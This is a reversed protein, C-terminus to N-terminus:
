YKSFEINRKKLETKFPDIPVIKEGPIVGRTTILDHAIFQGIISTPYATTRAMASFGTTPDTLDILQYTHIEKVGNISGKITIRALVVDPKNKPLNKELYHEIIERPTIEPNKPYNIASLLGFEKLFKIFQYHGPYRITKYTLENIKNEFLEPLSSTGGATQFAELEGWPEPFKIYEHGTLSPVKIAKRNQIIVADELYENTLGRIAFTQQYKLLTKPEQPLGGVKLHCEDLEEFEQMGNAAIINVMGPALGLDPIITVDAKKADNTLTKQMQVVTPNGGLDLFHTGAEICIKSLLFNFKYDICGFAVKIDNKLFEETLFHKQPDEDLKLDLPLAQFRNEFKSFKESSIKRKQSDIEYGIVVSSHDQTLLDFCLATGMMGLGLVTYKVM